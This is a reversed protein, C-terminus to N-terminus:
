VEQFTFTMHTLKRLYLRSLLDDVPHALRCLHESNLKVKFALTHSQETSNQVVVINALFFDVFIRDKTPFYNQLALYPGWDHSIVPIPPGDFGPVLAHLLNM